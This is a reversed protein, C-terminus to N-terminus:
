KMWDGEQQGEGSTEASRADEVVVEGREPEGAEPEGGVFEFEAGSPGGGTAASFERAADTRANDASVSLGPADSEEAPDHVPVADEASEGSDFEEAGYDLETHHADAEARREPVSAGTAVGDFGDDGGSDAPSGYVTVEGNGSDGPAQESVRPRREAGDEFDFVTEEPAGSPAGSKAAGSFDFASAEPTGPPAGEEVASGFEWQSYDDYDAFTEQEEGAEEWEPGTDFDDFTTQGAAEEGYAREEATEEDGSSTFEEEAAERWAWEDGSSAGGFPIETDPMWGGSEGWRDSDDFTTQSDSGTFWGDDEFFRSESVARAANSSGGLAASAVGAAAGGSATHKAVEAVDDAASEVMQGFQTLKIPLYTGAIPIGYAAFLAGFGGFAATVAPSIALVAAAAVPYLATSLFFSGMKRGYGGIPKLAGVGMVSLTMWLPSLGLLAALVLVRVGNIVGAILTILWGLSAIMTTGVLAADLNGPVLNAAGLIASANPSIAVVLHAAMIMPIISIYWALNSKLLILAILTRKAYEGLNKQAGKPWEAAASILLGFFFVILIPILADQLPVYLNNYVSEYFSFPPRPNASGFFSKPTPAFIMLNMLANFIFEYTARFAALILGFTKDWVWLFLDQLMGFFGSILSSVFGM